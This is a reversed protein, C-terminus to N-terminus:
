EGPLAEPQALLRRDAEIVGLLLMVEADRREVVGRLEAVVTRGEALSRDLAEARDALSRRAAADGEAQARYRAARQDASNRLREADALRQRLDLERAPAGAHFQDAAAQTDAAHQHEKTATNEADQAYAKAAAARTEAAKKELTAIQTRADSLRVTQAGAALALAASVVILLYHGTNLKIM